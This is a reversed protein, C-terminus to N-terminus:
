KLPEKWEFGLHRYMQVGRDALLKVLAERPSKALNVLKTDVVTEVAAGDDRTLRLRYSSTGTREVDLPWPPFGGDAFIFSWLDAISNTWVPKPPLRAVLIVALIVALGLGISLLAAVPNM